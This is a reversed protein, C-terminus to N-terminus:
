IAMQILNSSPPSVSTNFPAPIFHSYWSHIVKARQPESKEDTFHPIGSGAEWPFYTLDQRADLIANWIM